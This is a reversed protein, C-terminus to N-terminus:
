ASKEETTLEILNGDADETLEIPPEDDYTYVLASGDFKPTLPRTQLRNQAHM